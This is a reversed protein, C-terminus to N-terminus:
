NYEIADPDQGIVQIDLYIQGYSGKEVKVIEFRSNRQLLTELEGGFHTQDSKGNWNVGEHGGGYASFPEVYLAQTGEPCYINLISGSFGTGKASGCSMFGQDSVEKHLLLQELQDQTASRLVEEPVQVFNSLGNLTEVGRQLWMDQNTTSKRLLNTLDEIETAARENNLPVKGVGVFNYWSGDYGRLPRNFKGSGATYDYAAYKENYTADAWIEKTSQRYAKDAEASSKAWVAMDKRMQTYSDERFSRRIDEKPTLAKVEAKADNYEKLLKSYEEGHKEFEKLEEVKKKMNDATALKLPTGAKEYEAAKQNFYDIKSQISDKKDEWDAYTVTQKYWIDEFKHDAGKAIVEDQLKQLKDQAEKLKQENELQEASKQKEEEKAKKWEKYTMNKIPKGDINDYREFVSPYEEVDTVLTCRCNYVESPPGSPDGPYRCGNSFKFPHWMDGVKQQEGDIAAHSDRTHSDLTAMWIKITEIGKQKTEMQRQYRGANQAQTMGTRAFTKMLNENSASLKDSMDKTIEDLRKGQIVGQTIVNNVKKKNWVYDKPENIKWKPLIQSNNKILNTVTASDYLQFGFNIGADHEIQYAAYNGGQVFVDSMKGNIMNVAIQNTNHLISNMEGIKYQWQEKQFVQGQMWNNYDQPTIEGKSLKDIQIKNKVAYKQNFDDLEDKLEAKAQKYIDEIQKDLKEVEKDAYWTDYDAM